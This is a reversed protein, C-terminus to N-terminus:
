HVPTDWEIPRASPSNVSFSALASSHVATCMFTVNTAATVHVITPGSSRRYHFSFANCLCSPSFYVQCLIHERIHTHTKQLWHWRSGVFTHCVRFEVLNHGVVVRTLANAHVIARTYMDRVYCTFTSTNHTSTINKIMMYACSTAHAKM